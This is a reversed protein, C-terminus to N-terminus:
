ATTKNDDIIIINFRAASRDGIEACAVFDM